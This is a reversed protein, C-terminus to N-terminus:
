EGRVLKKLPNRGLIARYSRELKLVLKALALMEKEESATRAARKAVLARYRKVAPRGTKEIDKLMRDDAKNWWANNTM